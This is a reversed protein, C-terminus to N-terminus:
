NRCYLVAPAPNLPFKEPKMDASLTSTFGSFNEVGLGRGWVEGRLINVLQQTSTRQPVTHANWKAPPLASQDEPTRHSDALLLMAYSIVGLAPELEVSAAHRVQAQGIGLVTKQERFNVEVEWRWPYSRVIQQPPLHPDNCILFAPERYLLRSGQSLRYALPAIVLLTFVQNPGAPRWRLNALTKIKFDHEKGAAFARVPQWPVSEDTRLQEPTPALRGYDPPRGRGTVASTPAAPPHYLKADKRIRGIVTTNAPLHRLFTQNTFRGDVLMRLPRQAQGPDLDLAQRLAQVHQAGHLAMSAAKSASRYAKKDQESANKRPKAPTPVHAFDIPITRTPGPADRPPLAASLQLVRQARVLNTQFKPGLPDRRWAVGPIKTGTKPLLSDDMAVCLPMDSPLQALLDRRIVTFAAAPDFRQHSFLRYPATWDRFQRGCTCLLATM